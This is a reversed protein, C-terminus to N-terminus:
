LRFFISIKRALIHSPKELLLYFVYAGSLVTFLRLGFHIWSSNDSIGYYRLVRILPWHVLYLSYSWLGAWELWKLPRHNGCRYYTIERLLWYYVLIAFFNLTYPYGVITRFRLSMCISSAVWIFIRWCYINLPSVVKSFQTHTQALKCGLLWCPFGLIWNMSAGFSSYNKSTPNTLIVIFGAAFAFAVLRNWSIRRSFALILPYLTYYIIEAVLSWAIAGNAFIQYDYVRIFLGCAAALPVGIRIYRRLFYSIWKHERKNRNPYHICFGSIVFFVIVAAPGSFLGKFVNAAISLFMSKNPQVLIFPIYNLHGLCVWLAGIFRISDLGQIKKDRNDSKLGAMPM